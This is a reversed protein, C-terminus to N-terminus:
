EPHSTRSHINSIDHLDLNNNGPKQKSAVSLRMSSTLVVLISVFFLHRYLSQLSVHIRYQYGFSALWNFCAHEICIYVACEFLVTTIKIGSRVFLYALAQLWDDHLRFDYQVKRVTYWTRLWRITDTSISLIFSTSILRLLSRVNYVIRHSDFQCFNHM